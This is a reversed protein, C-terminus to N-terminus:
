FALRSFAVAYRSRLRLTEFDCLRLPSHRGRGPGKSVKLSQSKAVGWVNLRRWKAVIRRGAHPWSEEFDATELDRGETQHHEQREDRGLPHQRPLKAPISKGLLHGRRDHDGSRQAPDDARLDVVRNQHAVPM